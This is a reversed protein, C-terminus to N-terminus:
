SSCHMFDSVRQGSWMANVTVQHQQKSNGNSKSGDAALLKLSLPETRVPSRSSVLQAESVDKCAEKTENWFRCVHIKNWFRYVHIQSSKERLRRASNTKAFMENM